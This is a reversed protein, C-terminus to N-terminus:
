EVKTVILVPVQECGLIKAAYVRHRGEQSKDVYDIYPMPMPSKKNLYAYEAARESNITQLEDHLTMPVQTKSGQILPKTHIDQGIRELYQDPSMCEIHGEVGKNNRMYDPHELLNNYWPVGTDNEDFVKNVGLIKLYKSDKSMCECVKSTRIM